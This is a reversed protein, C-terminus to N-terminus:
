AAAPKPDRLGHRKLMEFLTSRAIGLIRAAQARNGHSLRLAKLVLVREMEALTLVAGGLELSPSRTINEGSLLFSFAEETLMPSASSALGSAREVAHRLERVNGPWSHAELRLLAKPTLTRGLGQAFDRALLVIDAPRDRLPPLYLTVSALRYYLDRRFRGEEVLQRLPHHTAALIRADVRSTRDAGVPRIEGNELFRLLKVQIDTPLDGVEDLFLTGGHAQLLAGPRHAVAGTFSGKVHGFLESEALSAPLAGCHLPVFPGRARPSWHHILSALVEKGTGTEGELYLSLPTNAARRSEWLLDRGSRTTTKWPRTGTPFEPLAPTVGIRQLELRTEGVILPVGPPVLAERVSLDGMRVPPASAPVRLWFPSGEASVPLFQAAELAVQRDRLRIGAEDARGITVAGLLPVLRFEGAPEQIRLQWRPPDIMESARM